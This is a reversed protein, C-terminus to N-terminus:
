LSSNQAQWSIEALNSYPYKQGEVVFPRQKMSKQQPPPHKLYLVKQAPIQATSVQTEYVGM